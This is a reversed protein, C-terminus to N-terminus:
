HQILKQSAVRQLSHRGPGRKRLSQMIFTVCHAVQTQFLGGSTMTVHCCWCDKASVGICGGGGRVLQDVGVAKAGEGKATRGVHARKKHRRGGVIELGAAEIERCPDKDFFARKEAAGRGIQDRCETVNVTARVVSSQLRGTNTGRSAGSEEEDVVV